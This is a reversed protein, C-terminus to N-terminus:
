GIANSKFSSVYASLPCHRYCYLDLLLMVHSVSLLVSPPQSLPSGYTCAAASTGHVLPKPDLKTYFTGYMCSFFFCWGSACAAQFSNYCFTYITTEPGLDSPLHMTAAEFAHLTLLGSDGQALDWEFVLATAGSWSHM